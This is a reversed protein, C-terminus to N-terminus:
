RNASGLPSEQTSLVILVNALLALLRALSAPAMVRRTDRATATEAGGALACCTDFQRVNFTGVNFCQVYLTEM